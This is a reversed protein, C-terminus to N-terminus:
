GDDEDDGADEEEIDDGDEERVNGGRLSAGVRIMRSVFEPLPPPYAQFSGTAPQLDFIMIIIVIIIIIMRMRMM